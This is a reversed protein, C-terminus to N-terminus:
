PCFEAILGKTHVVAVAIGCCFAIIGVMAVGIAQGIAGVALVHYSLLLFMGSLFLALGALAYPLVIFLILMIGTVFYEGVIGLTQFASQLTLQHTRM